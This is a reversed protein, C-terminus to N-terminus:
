SVSLLRHGESSVDLINTSSSSSLLASDLGHPTFSQFPNALCNLPIYELDLQAENMILAQADQRDVM